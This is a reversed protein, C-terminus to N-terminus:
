PAPRDTLHDAAEIGAVISKIAHALGEAFAANKVRQTRTGGPMGSSLLLRLAEGTVPGRLWAVVAAREQERDTM